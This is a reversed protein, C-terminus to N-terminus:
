RFVVWERNKPPPSDLITNAIRQKPEPPEGTVIKRALTARPPLSEQAFPDMRFVLRKVAAELPADDMATGRAWRKRVNQRKERQAVQGIRQADGWGAVM